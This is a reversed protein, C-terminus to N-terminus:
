LFKQVFLDVSHTVKSEIAEKLFVKELVLYVLILCIFTYMCVDIFYTMCFTMFKRSINKRICMHIVMITMINMLSWSMTKEYM